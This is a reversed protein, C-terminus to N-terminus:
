LIEVFYFLLKADPSAFFGKTLETTYLSKPDEQCRVDISVSINAEDAAEQFLQRLTEASHIYREVHVGVPVLPPPVPVSHGKLGGTLLGAIWSGKGRALQFMLSAVQKQKAWDFAHLLQASTVIDWTGKTAVLISKEGEVFLDAARFCSKTIAHDQFLEHGVTFFQPYKDVGLLQEPAVGDHILKRVDQGLGTGLDILTSRDAGLTLRKIIRSYM